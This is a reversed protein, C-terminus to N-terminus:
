DRKSGVDDGGPVSTVRRTSANLSVWVNQNKLTPERVFVKKLHKCFHMQYNQIRIHKKINTQIDKNLLHMLFGIWHFFPRVLDNKTKKVENIM